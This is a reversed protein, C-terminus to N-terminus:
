STVGWLNVTPAKDLELSTGLSVWWREQIHTYIYIYIYM